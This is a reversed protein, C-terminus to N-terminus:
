DKAITLIIIEKAGNEKLIKSIANVTSGTTYIDDFIIIKKNNIKEKNILKYVNQVNTKRQLKNLYSQPLTNKVKQIINNQYEINQINSSIEKAILESQNYGRQKKRKKHIPVPIIIDYKKLIGCIKKNKIIIKSFLKYLYSKDNFKYDLILKRIKDKYLFIYIHKRFYLEKNKNNEIKFVAQEYLEKKCDACLIKNILKGCILCCQPFIINEIKKLLFILLKKLKLM